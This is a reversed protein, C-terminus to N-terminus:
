QEPVCSDGDREDLVQRLLVALDLVTIYAANLPDSDQPTLGYRERHFLDDRVHRAPTHEDYDSM